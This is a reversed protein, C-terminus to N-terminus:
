SGARQTALPCMTLNKKRFFDLLASAYRMEPVPEVVQLLERGAATLAVGHLKLPQAASYKQDPSLIWDGGQFRITCSVSDGSVVSSDYPMYSNYEPIILGCEQLVNLQGFSLGYEKLSNGDGYAGLYVARADLMVGGSRLSMALSALQQFLAATRGDLQGVLRVTRVSFSSPERIEGALIRGFIDRMENSTKQCAEKEFANLWDDDIEPGDESPEQTSVTEKLEEAAVAAVHDLNIQEQVIKRGFRRAAAEAYEPSVKMQEALQKAGSEILLVRAETEARKESAVGELYAIPVDMAASCLRGFAKLASRRVPAPVTSGTLWDTLADAAVTLAGPATEDSPEPQHETEETM